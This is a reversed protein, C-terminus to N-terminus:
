GCNFHEDLDAGTRKQRHLKKATETRNGPKVPLELWVQTGEGEKSTIQLIYDEGYYYRLRRRCNWIGIHKGISDEIIEGTRLKELIEQAMGAGTDCVSLLLKGQRQQVNMIIEIENGMILGYKIINEVFNEILLQPILIEEAGEDLSYVTTFSNPFRMKQIKLYDQVFEMEEKVPVLGMDQRLVYRFYKMLLQSFEIIQENKGVLALSYITNLFNLLMHQNVQLRMNISDSQLKEIEREYSDIVLRNLEDVMHNFSEYLFDLETSGASMKLHYDLDGSELKQMAEVLKKLPRFVLRVALTYVCPIAVFGLITLLYIVTLFVPLNKMLQATEIVQILQYDGDAIEKKLVVQKGSEMEDNKGTGNELVFGNRDFCCLLNGEKDALVIGGDAIGTADRFERLIFEVDLLIGFDYLPFSYYRLLFAKNDLAVLEWAAVAAKYQCKERLEQELRDTDSKLYVSGQNFYNIVDKEKDWVMCIGPFSCWANGGTLRSKFRTVEVVSDDQSGLTLKPLNTSDFFDQMLNRMSSLESDVREGYINLQGTYSIMLNERYSKNMMGTIVATLVNVPFVIACTVLIWKVTLSRYIIKIKRYNRKM